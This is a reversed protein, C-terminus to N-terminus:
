EQFAVIEPAEGNDHKDSYLLRLGDAKQHIIKLTNSYPYM